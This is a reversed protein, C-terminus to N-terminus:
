PNSDILKEARPTIVLGCFRCENTLIVIPPKYLPYDWAVPERPSSCICIKKNLEEM